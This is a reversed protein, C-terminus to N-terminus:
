MCYDRFVWKERAIRAITAKKTCLLVVTIVERTVTYLLRSYGKQVVTIMCYGKEHVTNGCYGNEQM